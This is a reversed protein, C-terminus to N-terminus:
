SVSLHHSRSRWAVIVGALMTAGVVAEVAWVVYPHPLHGGYLSWASWEFVFPLCVAAGAVLSRSRGWWCGLLGYVLGAVVAFALWHSILGLWPGVNHAIRALFPTSRGLPGPTGDVLLFGAYFGMVTAIGALIGAVAAWTRSRQTWGAVFALALWPSSLNSVWFVGVAHPSPIRSVLIGYSLGALGLLLLPVVRVRDREADYM